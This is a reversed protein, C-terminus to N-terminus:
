SRPMRLADLLEVAGSLEAPIAPLNRFIAAAFRHNGDAIPWFSAYGPVGVDVHVADTWGHLALYAIRQVHRSTRPSPELDQNRLAEAVMAPTLEILDSWPPTEYPDCMRRLAPVSILETNQMTPLCWICLRM